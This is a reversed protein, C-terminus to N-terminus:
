ASDTAATGNGSRMFARALAVKQWEGGSLEAGEDRGMLWRGLTTEYGSPLRAVVPAAGGREAAAQVAALDEVREVQGLGINERATMHYRSFDQFIVGIQRRWAELDLERLDVGDVLVRGETPDYLRSLLKVLTTKGAGNAGVLAVTQGPEITFSVDQLVQRETGPYRFAVHRFEIGRRLPVSVPRAQDPPPVAMTPEQELFAFLNGIFLNSEYLSAVQMIINAMGGQVQRVASGYFTFGGLSIRGAVASLVVYAYAGTTGAASLAALATNTRWQGFRLERQQRYYQGFLETYRRLFYEGLSFLRVEKAHERSSLMRTFNGMRRVEPVQINHLGWSQRQHRFQVVVNPLGLAVVALALLPQFTLLVGLMSGLSIVGRLAWTLQQMMGTPRWGAEQQARQLLDYFRPSEFFSIDVLSNVKRHIRVNIERTVRDATELQALRQAPELALNGLFVLGQLALLGGVTGLVGSTDAAAAGSGAPVVSAAVADVLHKFIWMEVLPVLGQALGIALLLLAFGPHADWVLRLVRPTGALVRLAERVQRTAHTLTARRGPGVQVRAGEPEAM